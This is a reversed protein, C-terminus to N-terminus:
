TGITSTNFSSIETTYKYETNGSVGTTVTYYATAVLNNDGQICSFTTTFPSSADSATSGDPKVFDIRSPTGISATAVSVTATISEGVTYTSGAPSSLSITLFTPTSDPRTTQLRHVDSKNRYFDSVHRPEWDEECVMLGDWRKRLQSFKYKFGCVDCIGNYEYSKTAYSGM